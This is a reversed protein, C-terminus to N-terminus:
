IGIVKTRAILDHLAKGDERRGMLFQSILILIIGIIPIAYMMKSLERVIFQLFSPQNYTDTVIKMGLLYKGLQYGQCFTPALVSYLAFIISIIILAKESPVGLQILAGLGVAYLAINDFLVAGIRSTLKSKM